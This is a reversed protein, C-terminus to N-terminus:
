EDEYSEGLLEKIEIAKNIDEVASDTLKRLDNIVMDALDILNEPPIEHLNEVDPFKLDLDVNKELLVEVVKKCGCLIALAIVTLGNQMCANIDAGNKIFDLAEQERNNEIAIILETAGTGDSENM